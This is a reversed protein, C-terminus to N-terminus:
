RVKARILATNILTAGSACVSGHNRNVEVHPSEVLDDETTTCEIMTIILSIAVRTIARCRSTPRTAKM